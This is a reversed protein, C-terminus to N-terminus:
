FPNSGGRVEFHLHTGTSKGTNGMGGIVAGQTVYDGASVNVLSLHAYLTQVGNSHRIVIYSGYGGNWGGAKAVIVEGAAAAKITSGSAGALDVANYGHIGQTRVAGPAPHTLWSGGAQSGSSKTPTAAAVTRATASHLSGGPIILEDGVTLTTDAALNNYDLVEEIDADYSKVISSLTEGRAVTHKIGEIPLIVLTDGPHIDTASNLDNAWLVTNTTVGYMSAIMSLSDGERVVYVSIEGSKNPSAAIQAADVPGTAKLAGDEVSIDGGGIAMPDANVKATLLPTFRASHDIDIYSSTTSALVDETFLSALASFVGAHVTLPALVICVAPLLEVIRLWSRKAM